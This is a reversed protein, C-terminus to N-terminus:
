TSACIEDVLLPIASNLIEIDTIAKTVAKGIDTIAFLKRLVEPSGKANRLKTCEEGSIALLGTGVDNGSSATENGLGTEITRSPYKTELIKSAIEGRDLGFTKWMEIEDTLAQTATISSSMIWLSNQTYPTYPYKDEFLRRVVEEKTLGGAVWKDIEISLDSGYWSNNRAMIGWRSGIVIGIVLMALPWPSIKRQSAPIERKDPGILGSSKNELGSIAAIIAVAVGAVSTIVISVVPSVSLGLLWGIGLGSILVSTWALVKQM